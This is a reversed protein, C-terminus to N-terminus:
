IVSIGRLAVDVATGIMEFAEDTKAELAPTLFPRARQSVWVERNGFVPHRFDGPIGGHEFPAADPASDGGAQIKVALARRKVTISGPIRSSFGARKRAEEAVLEGAASLGNFFERQVVPEVRQLVRAFSKLSSLDIRIFDTAM